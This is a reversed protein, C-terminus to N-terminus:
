AVESCWTVAGTADLRLGPQRGVLATCRLYRRDDSPVALDELCLAIPIPMRHAGPASELRPCCWRSDKALLRGRSISEVAADNMLFGCGVLHLEHFLAFGGRRGGLVREREHRRARGDRGDVTAQELPSRHRGGYAVQGDTAEADGRQEDRAHDHGVTEHNEEAHAVGVERLDFPVHGAGHKAPQRGHQSRRREHERRFRRLCLPRDADAEVTRHPELPAYAPEVHM